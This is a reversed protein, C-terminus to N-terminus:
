RSVVAQRATVTLISNVALNSRIILIVFTSAGYQPALPAFAM